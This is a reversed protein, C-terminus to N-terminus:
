ATTERRARSMADRAAGCRSCAANWPKRHGRNCWQAVPFGMASLDARVISARVALEAAIQYGLRKDPVQVPRFGQIATM